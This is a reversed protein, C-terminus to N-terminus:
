VLHALHNRQVVPLLLIHAQTHENNVKTLCAQFSQIIVDKIMDCTTTAIIAAPAIAPIILIGFFDFITGIIASIIQKM